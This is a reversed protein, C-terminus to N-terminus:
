LRIGTSVARRSRPTARVSVPEPPAVAPVARLEREPRDAQTIADFMQGRFQRTSLLLAAIAPSRQRDSPAPPRRLRRAVKVPLGCLVHELDHLSHSRSIPLVITITVCSRRARRAHSACGADPSPHAIGRPPAAGQLSHRDALWHSMSTAHLTRRLRSRVDGVSTPSTTAIRAKPKSWVTTFVHYRPTSM